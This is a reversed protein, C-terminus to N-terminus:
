WDEFPAIMYNGALNHLVARKQRLQFRANQVHKYLMGRGREGDVFICIGAHPFIEFAVEVSNGRFVGRVVGVGLLPGIIHGSM